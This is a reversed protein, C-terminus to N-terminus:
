TKCCKACSFNPAQHEETYNTEYTELLDRDHNYINYLTGNNTYVKMSGEKMRYNCRHVKSGYMTSFATAVQDIPLQGYANFIYLNIDQWDGPNDGAYESQDYLFCRGVAQYIMHQTRPKGAEDYLKNGQDDYLYEEQVFYPKKVPKGIDCNPVKGFPVYMKFVLAEEIGALILRSYNYGGWFCSDPDGYDGRNWSFNADFRGYIYPVDSQSKTLLSNIQAAVCLQFKIGLESFLWKHVRKSIKGGEKTTKEM